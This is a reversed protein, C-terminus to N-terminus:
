LWEKVDIVDIGMAKWPEIVSDRDDFAYLPKCGMDAIAKDMLEKKTTGDHRHDDKDRTYLMVLKNEPYWWTFHEFIWMWCTERLTSPRGTIFVPVANYPRLYEQVIREINSQIPPDLRVLDPDLFKAYNRQKGPLKMGTDMDLIYSLRHDCNAVTGDMDIAIWNM